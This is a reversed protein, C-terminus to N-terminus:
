KLFRLLYLTSNILTIVEDIQNQIYSDDTLAQRSSEISERLDTLYTVVGSLDTYEQVPVTKYGKIIGYKGQYSEVLGDTLGDIGEYFKQLAKHAAFSDTQLHFIHTQTQSALLHSIFTPYDFSEVQEKVVRVTGDNNFEYTNFNSLM